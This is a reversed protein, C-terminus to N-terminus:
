ESTAADSIPARKVRRLGFLFRHTLAYVLHAAVELLPRVLVRLCYGNLDFRVHTSNSPLFAVFFESM